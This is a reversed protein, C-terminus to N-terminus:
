NPCWLNVFKLSRQPGLNFVMKVNISERLRRKWASTIEECGNHKPKMIKLPFLVM